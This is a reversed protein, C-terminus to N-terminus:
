TGRLAPRWSATSPPHQRTFVRSVGDLPITATLVTELNLLLSAVLGDTM